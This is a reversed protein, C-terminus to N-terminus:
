ICCVRLDELSKHVGIDELHLLCFLRRKVRRDKNIKMCIIVNANAVAFSFM